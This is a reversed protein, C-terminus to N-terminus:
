WLFVTCNNGAWPYKDVEKWVEAVPNVSGRPNESPVAFPCSEVSSSGSHNFQDSKIGGCGRCQSAISQILAFAVCTLLAEREGLKHNTVASNPM